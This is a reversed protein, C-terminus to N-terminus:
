KGTTVTDVKWESHTYKETATLAHAKRDRYTYIYVKRDSYTYISEQRQLHIYTGTTVSHLSKETATLTHVKRDSHTYTSEM